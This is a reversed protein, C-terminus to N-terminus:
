LRRAKARWLTFGRSANKLGRQADAKSQAVEPRRACGAAIELRTM